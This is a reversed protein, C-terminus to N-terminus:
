LLSFPVANRRYKILVDIEVNRRDFYTGSGFVAVSFGLRHLLLASHIVNVETGGYFELDPSGIIAVRKGMLGGEGEGGDRMTEGGYM